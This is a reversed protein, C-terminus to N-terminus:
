PAAEETSVEASALEETPEETSAAEKMSVEVPDLEETPEETPIAGRYVSRCPSAGEHPEETPAAQTEVPIPKWTQGELSRKQPTAGELVADDSFAVYPEM